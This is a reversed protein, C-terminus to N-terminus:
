GVRGETSGLLYLSAWCKCVATLALTPPDPHAPLRMTGLRHEPGTAVRSPPGM